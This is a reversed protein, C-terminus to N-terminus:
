RTGIRETAAIFHDVDDFDLFLNTSVRMFGIVNKYGTAKLHIGFEKEYTKVPNEPLDRTFRFSAAACSREPDTIIQIYDKEALAGVWHKKLNHLRAEKDKIGTIELFDLASAITLLRPYDYTGHYNFKSIDNMTESPPSFNVPVIKPIKEAKIYLLGSGLPANLWKHLSTAYYDCDIDHISHDFHACAHAADVLVEVGKSKAMACIAKAPLKQGERHTMYTLLILKTSPSIAKRYADAIEEDSRRLDLDLNTLKLGDRKARSKISNVANPYDCNAYVIEDGAELPLGWVITNISETTNRTFALEDHRCGLLDALRNKIQDFDDEVYKLVEYAAYANFKLINEQYDEVVPEPMNGASGSNMNRIDNKSLAFQSKIQQWIDSSPDIKFENNISQLPPLKVQSGLGIISLYELFKRRTNM